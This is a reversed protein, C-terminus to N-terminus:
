EKNNGKHGHRHDIDPAHEHSHEIREHEHIHSHVLSAEQGEHTHNHHGDTHSHRHEHTIPEHIHMHSHREKLLLIAGLVMVPISIYFMVNPSEPFMLLSIVAGAFPAAGFYASTRASGLSRMALIFLVISLGYLLFGLVMAELITIIDPLRSGAALALMLSVSGAGLGKIMVISVPDKASINRTLNNDLGWLACAAAIGAAGLSIGFSGGVDWSLLICAATILAVAAWVRRGVAEKFILGALLATAVSEFNLLLSATAASTAKLSLMLIVPAAVGGALLTGALWKVDEKKIGAEFQTNGKRARQLVKFILLGLGSGLYLFAALPLPEISGLLLKSVPASSGFLLAAMLARIVPASGKRM